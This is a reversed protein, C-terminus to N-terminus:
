TTPFVRYDSNNSWHVDEGHAYVGKESYGILNGNADPVIVFKNATHDIGEPFNVGVSPRALPKHDNIGGEGLVCGQAQACEAKDTDHDLDSVNKKTNIGGPFGNITFTKKPM